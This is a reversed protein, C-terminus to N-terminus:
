LGISKELDWKLVQTITYSNSEFITRTQNCYSSLLKTEVIRSTTIWIQGLQFNYIKKLPKNLFCTEFIAVFDIAVVTGGVRCM